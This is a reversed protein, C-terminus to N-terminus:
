YTGPPNEGLPRTEKLLAQGERSEAVKREVTTLVGRLRINPELLGAM